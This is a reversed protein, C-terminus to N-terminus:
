AMVARNLLSSSRLDLVCARSCAAPIVNGFQSHARGTMVKTMVKPESLWLRVSSIGSGSWFGPSSM